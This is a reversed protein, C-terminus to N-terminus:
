FYGKDYIININKTKSNNKSYSKNIGISVKSIM